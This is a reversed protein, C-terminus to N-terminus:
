QGTTYQYDVYQWSGGTKYWLRVYLQSGNTPLNNVTYSTSTGLSGSNHINSKGQSTGIWLWWQSVATGNATWTFTESAGSLTSDPVPSTMEPESGGGSGTFATYQYDIYQWSGTNYWLRVYVQSGNTPLSNVTYSSTSTGLSGSNAINSSGTSSGVYLWWQSVATGNATWTFTESSGSLTTGPVPSAIEPAGCTSTGTYDQDTQDTTVNSYSINAPSFSYCNASPTITGSWNSGATCSYYGSDDTVSCSDGSM